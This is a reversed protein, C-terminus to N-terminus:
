LHLTEEMYGTTRECVEQNGTAGTVVVCLTGTLFPYFSIGYIFKVVTNVNYRDNNISFLLSSFM